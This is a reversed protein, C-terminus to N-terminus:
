GVLGAHHALIAAQVRNTLQLKALVRSVHSKVTAESLHLRRGIDSNALGEGVATLVQREKDTLVEIRRSADRRRPSSPEAFRHLLRRTVRPSQMPDGAAASRVAATMQEATADKLLFGVAGHRLATEVYEDLDFTTLVVVKPPDPFRALAATAALGDARPMRIDMLVVDPRHTRAQWVARDGDEAEGVVEIDDYASMITRLMARVMWEDDVVLVRIVPGGGM